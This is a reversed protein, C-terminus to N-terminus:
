NLHRKEVAADSPRCRADLLDLAHVFAAEPTEPEAVAQWEHRGHHAAICHLLNAEDAATVTEGLERVSQIAVLARSMSYSTHGALRDNDLRQSGAPTMRYCDLKGLDHCLIATRVLDAQLGPYSPLLAEAHALMTLTHWALGGREAHHKSQAGPLQWFPGDQDHPDHGLAETAVLRWVEPLRGLTGGLVAALAARREPGIDALLRALIAPSPHPALRLDDLKLQLNGQYTSVAGTAAAVQGVEDSGTHDWWVAPLSGSADRLTYRTYPKGERTTGSTAEAIFVPLRDPRAGDQLDAIPPDLPMKTLEQSADYAARPPHDALRYRGLAAVLPGAPLVEALAQLGSQVARKRAQGRPPPPLGPLDIAFTACVASAMDPPIQRLGAVLTERVVEREDHWTPEPPAALATLLLTALPQEDDDHEPFQGVLVTEPREIPDGEATRRRASTRPVPIPVSNTIFEATAHKIITRLFDRLRMPGDPDFRPLREMLATAITRSCDERNAPRSTTANRAASEILRDATALIAELAGPTGAQYQRALETEADRELTWLSEAM